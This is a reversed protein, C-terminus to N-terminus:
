NWLESQNRSIWNDLAKCSGLDPKAILIQRLAVVQFEMPMREIYITIPDMNKEDAAAGLAGCTAWLLSPDNVPCKANKPDAIIDSMKPVKDFHKVFALFERAVGESITGALMAMYGSSLDSVGKILKNAFMWTRPAAFTLDDHNADFKYFCDVKFNLFSQIRHDLGRPIAYKLWDQLSPVVLFNIMRSQLPTPLPNVIAGDDETNGAAVLFAKEHLDHNGVQRDLIVKFAAAQVAPAASPLEDMFIIWGNYQQENGESDKFTPLDDGKLPFTDFPTYEAVVRKGERNLFPLGNMDTPDFTSLRVDIVKLKAQSAIQKVVDSKGIAPSGHIMPVLGCKLVHKIQPVADALTIKVSM